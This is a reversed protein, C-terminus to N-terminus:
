GHDCVAVIGIWERKDGMGESIGDIAVHCQSLEPAQQRHLM